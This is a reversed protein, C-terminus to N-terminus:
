LIDVVVLTLDDEFHGRNGSWEEIHSPLSNVFIEAKQDSHERIYSHFREEGFLENSSNRTEIICDTYLIIRDGPKIDIEILELRDLELLGLIKGKSRVTTIEDTSKNYIILPSHGANSHLLKRKERDIYIYSAAVFHTECKGYLTKHINLLMKEPMNYCSSQMYFAIKVMSSILAAPIGHGSVDAVIIGTGGDDGIHYDYLDGGVLEMPMYVAKIDIGDINPLKEPLISNQIRRAIELERQLNELRNHKGVAEKLTILMDVRAILERRDFPKSLYDNAGAEFGAVIDQIRNKATLLLVPLDYLSYKERILRCVHYGTMKPMMVDLIVLDPAGRNIINIADMGNDATLLTYGELNLQNQMVKVNVPEDDVILITAGALTNRKLPQQGTIEDEDNLMVPSEPKYSKDLYSRPSSTDLLEDRNGKVVPITFRFESGEGPQSTVKIKGGHLEVLSRTIALGLGTGGYSRTDSSDVQQFHDFIEDFKDEPIGIGTDRVSVITEDGSEEATVSILGSDTFKVANGVLNYMIQQLRNEDALVPQSSPNISNIIKLPKKSATPMILSIVLETVQRLDVPKKILVLDNNKMKSFDLLDNVLHTLRRGSLVIMDLNSKQDSNVKGAAGDILSEAIGIIGTLPTKLEHSTNALFEDKLRSTKVLEENANILKDKANKLNLVMSNFTTALEGLEDDRDVNVSCDLDGESVKKAGGKLKLIPTTIYDALMWSILITLLFTIFSVIVAIRVMSMNFAAIERHFLEIVVLGNAVGKSDRIIGYVTSLNEGYISTQETRTEVTNKQSKIIEKCREVVSDSEMYLEGPISQSENKATFSFYLDLSKSNNNIDVLAERHNIDIKKGHSVLSLPGHSLVRVLETNGLMLRGDETITLKYTKEEIKVNFSDTYIKENYKIRIDDNSGITLAFGFYKSTIWVTDTELIDSDVIYTLRDNKADYNLTFLYTIYNEHKRVNNLYKLYKKYDPDSASKLSTFNKHIDGDIALAISRALSQRSEIFSKYYLGGAFRYLSFGLTIAIILNIILSFLIIKKRLNKKM